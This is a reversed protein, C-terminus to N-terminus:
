RRHTDIGNDDANGPPPLSVRDLGTPTYGVYM